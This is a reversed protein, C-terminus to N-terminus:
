KRGRKIPTGTAGHTRYHFECVYARDHRNRLRADWTAGRITGMEACLMCFGMPNRVTM